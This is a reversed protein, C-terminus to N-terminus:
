KRMGQQHNVIMSLDIPDASDLYSGISDSARKDIGSSRHNSVFSSNPLRGISSPALRGLRRDRARTNQFWVQVVRPPYDVRNALEIIERKSPKPNIEYETKLIRVTDDSLVSRFRARKNANTQEGQMSEDTTYRENSDGNTTGNTSYQPVQNSNVCIDNSDSVEHQNLLRNLGTHTLDEEDESSQESRYDGNQIENMFLQNSTFDNLNHQVDLKIQENTTSSLFDTKNNSSGEQPGLFNTSFFNASSKSAAEAAASAAAAAAAILSAQTSLCQSPLSSTPQQSNTSTSSLLGQSALHLLPNQALGAALFPNMSYNKMINTLINALSVPIEYPPANFNSNQSTNEILNPAIASLCNVSSPHGTFAVNPQAMSRPPLYSSQQSNNTNSNGSYNTIPSNLRDFQTRKSKSSNPPKNMTSRKAVPRTGSVSSSTAAVNANISVPPSQLIPQNTRVNQCKKNSSMHTSYESATAFRQGCSLCSHEIINRNNTDNNMPLNPTVGGKRVKLNMILCKKSTMHSSYSGSHSFRKGCNLCEFPKEGSHIRIHEKLHHKFKFAKGCEECKFRRLIQDDLQQQDRISLKTVTGGVNNGRIAAVNASGNIKYQSNMMPSHLQQTQHQNHIIQEQCMGAMNDLNQQIDHNHNSDLNYEQNTTKIIAANIPSCSIMSQQHNHRLQSKESKNQDDSDLFLRGSEATVQQQQQAAAVQAVAAIFATGSLHVASRDGSDNCNQHDGQNNNININNISNLSEHNNHRHRNSINMTNLESEINNNNTCIKEISDNSENSNQGLQDFLNNNSPLRSCFAREVDDFMKDKLQKLHQNQNRHQMQMAAKEEIETAILMKPSSKAPERPQNVFNDYDIDDKDGGVAETDVTEEEAEEGNVGEEEEEEDEDDNDKEYDERVEDDNDEAENEKEEKDGREEGEEEEDLACSKGKYSQSVDRACKQADESLLDDIQAHQQLKQQRQGICGLEKDCSTELAVCHKTAVPLLLEEDEFNRINEEEDDDDHRGNDGFNSGELKISVNQLTQSASKAETAAEVKFQHQIHGGRLNGFDNLDASSVRKPSNNAEIKHM